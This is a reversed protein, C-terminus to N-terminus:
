LDNLVDTIRQRSVWASASWNALLGLLPSILSAGYVWPLLVVIQNQVGLALLISYAFTVGAVIGLVGGFTSIMVGEALILRVVQRRTAGMARLTVLERLRLRVSSATHTMLVMTAVVAMTLIATTLVISFLLVAEQAKREEGLQSILEVNQYRPDVLIKQLTHMVATANGGTVNIQISQLNRVSFDRAMVSPYTYMYPAGFAPTKGNVIGIVKLDVIVIHGVGLKQLRVTDGVKFGTQAAAAETLVIGGPAVARSSIQGSVIQFHDIRWDMELNTGQLSPIVGGNMRDSAAPFGHGNNLFVFPLMSTFVEYEIGRIARIQDEMSPPMGSLSNLTIDHPFNTSIVSQVASETGQLVLFGANGIVITVMLAGACVASRRKYRVVNRSALRVNSGSFLRSSKSFLWAMGQLLGPIWLFLGIVLGLGAYLYFGSNLNRVHTLIALLLSSGVLVLASVNSFRNSAQTDLVDTSQFAGLPSVKAALRSPVWGVSVILLVCSVAIWGLTSWPIVLVVMPVHFLLESLGRTLFSLGIGVALGTVTSLVGYLLSEIVVLLSLQRRSAGLLRLMAFDKRREQLSIQLTSIVIYISTVLSTVSLGKFLPLFNAVYNTENGLGWYQSRVDVTMLPAVRYIVDRFTNAVDNKVTSNLGPNFQIIVGTARTGGTMKHLWSYDFLAVAFSASSAAPLEGVVTIPISGFGPFPLSVVSGLSLHYHALFDSSLAVQRARPFTGRIVDYSRLQRSLDTGTLGVYYLPDNHYRTLQDPYPYLIPSLAKIGEIGRLLNLDAKTLGVQNGLRMSPQEYALADYYGDQHRQIAVISENLSTFVIQVATVLVIGLSIGLISLFTRGKRATFFRLGLKLVSSNV